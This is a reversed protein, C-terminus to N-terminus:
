KGTSIEAILDALDGVNKLGYIRSRPLRVQFRQELELMLITHSLSDWGRIDMASTQRSIPINGANFTKRVVAAVEVFAEDSNM